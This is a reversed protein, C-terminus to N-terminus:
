KDSKKKAPEKKEAEVKKAYNIAILHKASKEDVELQEGKQKGDIVANLVEIKVKAM